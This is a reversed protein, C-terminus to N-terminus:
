QQSEYPKFKRDGSVGPMIFSGDEEQTVFGTAVFQQLLNIAADGQSKETELNNVKAQLTNYEMM